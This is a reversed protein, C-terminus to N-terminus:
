KELKEIIEDAKDPNVLLIYNVNEDDNGNPIIIEFGMAEAAESLKKMAEELKNGM